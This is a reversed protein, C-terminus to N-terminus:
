YEFLFNSVKIPSKKYFAGQPHIHDVLIICGTMSRLCFMNTDNNEYKKKHVMDYCVNAMLALGNVVSAKTVNNEPGENELYNVTTETVVRMMPTAHAFFLSMRNALDDRVVIDDMNEKSHKIRALYRRYYSFDNQIAPNMMKADDFQLVFDFVDALQKALAQKTVLSQQDDDKMLANLLVPFIDQLKLSYDYIEKLVAIAPLLAVWAEKETEPSPKSM